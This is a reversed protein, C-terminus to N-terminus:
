HPFHHKLPKLREYIDYNAINVKKYTFDTDTKTDLFRRGNLIAKNHSNKSNYLLKDTSLNRDFNPKLSQVWLFSIGIAVTVISALIITKM